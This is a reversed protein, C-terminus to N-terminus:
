EKEHEYYKDKSILTSEQGIKVMNSNSCSMFFDKRQEVISYVFHTREIGELNKVSVYYESVSFLVLMVTFFRLMSNKHNKFLSTKVKGKRNVITVHIEYILIIGAVVQMIIVGLKSWAAFPIYSAIDNRGGELALFILFDSNNLTCIVDSTRREIFQAILMFQGLLIPAIMFVWLVIKLKKDFGNM